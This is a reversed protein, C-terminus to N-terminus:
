PIRYYIKLLFTIFFNLSMARLAPLRRHPAASRNEKTPHLVSFLPLTLPLELKTSGVLLELVDFLELIELLEVDVLGLPPSTVLV